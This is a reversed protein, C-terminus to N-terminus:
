PQHPGIDVVGSQSAATIEPGGGALSMSMAHQSRFRVSAMRSFRNIVSGRTSQADINAAQRGDLTVHVNGTNSTFRYPGGSLGEFGWDIDGGETKVEAREALMATGMVSGSTTEVHLNGAVRTMTVRGTSTRIHGFGALQRLDVSGGNTVVVYPGRFQSLAADGDDLKVLVAADRQPVYVTMDGGPNDIRVGTTGERVGPLTFRRPPLGMGRPIMMGQNGSTIHFTTATPNNGGVVRVYGDDGTTVTVLGASSHIVVVPADPTSVTQDALAPRYGALATLFLLAASLLPRGFRTCSM